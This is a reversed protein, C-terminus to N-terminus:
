CEYGLVALQEAFIHNLRAITPASLQQKHDGPTVKRKHGITNIAHSTNSSTPPTFNDGYTTILEDQLTPHHALDLATLLQPLWHSFDTVMDEYTLITTHERNLYQRFYLQYDRLFWETMTPPRDLKLVRRLRHKTRELWSSSEPLRPSFVFRDIGREIYVQRVTEPIYQQHYAQYFYMSTLVDRPDRFHLLIRATEPEPIPFYHRFPGYCGDQTVYQALDSTDESPLHFPSTVPYNLSYHTLHGRKSLDALLTHLFMTGAKMTSFIFFRM